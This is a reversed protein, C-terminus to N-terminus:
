DSVVYDVVWALARKVAAVGDSSTSMGPRSVSVTAYVGDRCTHGDLVQPARVASVFATANTPGLAASSIASFVDCARDDSVEEGRRVADAAATLTALAEPEDDLASGVGRLVEPLSEAWEAAPVAGMEVGLGPVSGVRCLVRGDEDEYYGRGGVSEGLLDAIQQTSLFTCPREFVQVLNEPEALSVASSSERGFEAPTAGREDDSCGALVFGLLVSVAM